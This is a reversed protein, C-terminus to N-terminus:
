AHSEELHIQEYLELMAKTAAFHRGAVPGGNIIQEANLASFSAYMRTASHIPRWRKNPGAPRAAVTFRIEVAGSTSEHRMLVLRRRDRASIQQRIDPGYISDNPPKAKM